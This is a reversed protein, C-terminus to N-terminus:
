DPLQLPEACDPCPDGLYAYGEWGCLCTLFEKRDEELEEEESKLEEKEDEPEELSETEPMPDDMEPYIDELAGYTM